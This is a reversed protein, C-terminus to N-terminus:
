NNKRHTHLLSLSVSLWTVNDSGKIVTEHRRHSTNKTKIKNIYKYVMERVATINNLVWSLVRM